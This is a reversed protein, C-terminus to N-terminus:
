NGWQILLDRFGGEGLGPTRTELAQILSHDLSVPKVARELWPPGDQREPGGHLWALPCAAGQAKWLRLQLPQKGAGRWRGAEAGGGKGRGQLSM